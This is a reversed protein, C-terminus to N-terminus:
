QGRKEAETLRGLIILLGTWNELATSLEIHQGSERFIKTYEDLYRTGFEFEGTERASVGVMNAYAALRAKGLVRQCRGRREADRIFGLACRMGESPAALQRFLRGHNLRERYLQDAGVFDNADLLLEIAALVPELAAIDRPEERSPRATLLDAAGTAIGPAWGLLTQRFHDRLIPHCSWAETAPDGILLHQRSLMTLADDLEVDSAGQTAEAVAPLHRALALIIARPALSRFFSVIGLLATQAKPMGKEYFELLHKLKRELPIDESLAAVDFVEQLRRGLDGEGCQAVALAILRLALPHGNFQRSM